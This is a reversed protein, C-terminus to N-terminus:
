LMKEPFFVWVASGKEGGDASSYACIRVSPTKEIIKSALLLLNFKGFLRKRAMQDVIDLRLNANLRNSEHRFTRRYFIPASLRPTYLCIGITYM